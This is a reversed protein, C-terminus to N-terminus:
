GNGGVVIFQNKHLVVGHGCRPENLLGVKTWQKTVLSFAAIISSDTYQKPGTDGGFIYITKKVTILPYRKIYPGQPFKERASVRYGM